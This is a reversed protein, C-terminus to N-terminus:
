ICVHLKRFSQRYTEWSFGSTMKGECTSSWNGLLRKSLSELNLCNPFKCSLLQNFKLPCMCMLVYVNFISSKKKQQTKLLFLSSYLNNFYAGMPSFFALFIASQWSCLHCGFPVKQWCYWGSQTPPGGQTRYKTKSSYHLTMQLRISQMACTHLEHCKCVHLILFAKIYSVSSRPKVLTSSSNTFCLQTNIIISHVTFFSM